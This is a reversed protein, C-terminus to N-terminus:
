TLLDLINTVFITLVTVMEFNDGVCKTVLMSTARFKCVARFGEKLFPIGCVSLSMDSYIFIVDSRVPKVYNEANVLKNEAINLVPECEPLQAPKQYEKTGLRLFLERKQQWTQSMM